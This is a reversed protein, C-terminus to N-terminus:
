AARAVAVAVGIAFLAVVIALAIQWWPRPPPPPAADLARASAAGTSGGVGVAADTPSGSALALGVRRAYDVLGTADSTVSFTNFPIALSRLRAKVGAPTWASTATGSFWFQQATVRGGTKVAKNLTEPGSMIRALEASIATLRGFPDALAAADTATMYVTVPTATTVRTADSLTPV